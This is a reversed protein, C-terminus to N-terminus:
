NIIKRRISPVTSRVASAQSGAATTLRRTPASMGQDSSANSRSSVQSDRNGSAGGILTSKRNKPPRTSLTDKEVEKKEIKEKQTDLSEHVLNAPHNALVQATTFIAISAFSTVMELAALEDANFASAGSRRALVLVGGLKMDKVDIHNGKVDSLSTQIQRHCPYFLPLFIAPTNAVLSNSSTGSSGVVGDIDAEYRSDACIDVVNIPKRAVLTAHILSNRNANKMGSMAMFLQQEDPLLAPWSIVRTDGHSVVRWTSTVENEITKMTSYIDCTLIVGLSDARVISAATSLFQLCKDRVCLALYYNASPQQHLSLKGATKERNKDNPIELNGLDAILDNNNSLGVNQKSNRVHDETAGFRALSERAVILPLTTARKLLARSTQYQKDTSDQMNLLRKILSTQSIEYASLGSSLGGLSTLLPNLIKPLLNNGHFTNCLDIGENDQKEDNVTIPMPSAYIIRIIIYEKNEKEEEKNSLPLLSCQVVLKENQDISNCNANSGHSTSINDHKTNNKHYNRHHNPTNSGYINKLIHAPVGHLDLPSLHKNQKEKSKLNEESDTSPSTGIVYHSGGKKCCSLVSSSSSIKDEFNEYVIEGGLITRVTHGTLNISSNNSHTSNLEGTKRSSYIYNNNNSSLDSPDLSSPVVVRAYVRNEESIKLILISLHYAGLYLDDTAKMHNNILETDNLKDEQSSRKENYIERHNHHVLSDDGLGGGFLTPPPDLTCNKAFSYGHSNSPDIGLVIGILYDSVRLMIGCIVDRSPATKISDLGLKDVQVSDDVALESFKNMPLESLDNQTCTNHRINASGSVLLTHHNMLDFAIKSINGLSSDSDSNFRTDKLGNADLPALITQLKKLAFKTTNHAISAERLLELNRLAISRCHNIDHITASANLLIASIGEFVESAVAGSVDLIPIHESSNELSKDRDNGKEDNRGDDTQLSIYAYMELSPLLVRHNHLNKDLEFKDQPLDQNIQGIDNIDISEKAVPPPPPPRALPKPVSLSMNDEFIKNRQASANSKLEDLAQSRRNELVRALKNTLMIDHTPPDEEHKASGSVVSISPHPNGNVYAEAIKSVDDNSRITVETEMGNKSRLLLVAAFETEENNSLVSPEPDIQISNISEATNNDLDSICVEDDNMPLYPVPPYKVHKSNYAYRSEEYSKIQSMPVLEIIIGCRSLVAGVDPSHLIAGISRGSSSGKIISRQLYNVAHWIASRSALVLAKYQQELAQKALIICDVELSSIQSTVSQQRRSVYLINSVAQAAVDCLEELDNIQANNESGTNNDLEDFETSEKQISKMDVLVQMIGVVAKSNNSQKSNTDDHAQEDEKTHVAVPSFLPFSIVRIGKEGFKNDEFNSLPNGKANVRHPLTIEVTSRKGLACCDVAQKHAILFSEDDLVNRVDYKDGELQTYIENSSHFINSLDASKNDVLSTNHFHWFLSPIRNEKKHQIEEKESNEEGSLKIVEAFAFRCSTSSSVMIPLSYCLSSLLIELNDAYARAIINRDHDVSQPTNREVNDFEEEVGNKSKKQQGEHWKSRPTDQHDKQRKAAFVPATAIFDLCKNVMNTLSFYFQAATQAKNTVIGYREVKNKEKYLDDILADVNSVADAATKAHIRERYTSSIASHLQSSLVSMIKQGESGINDQSNQPKNESKVESVRIAEDVLPNIDGSSSVKDPHKLLEVIVMGIMRGDNAEIRKSISLPNQDFNPNPDCKPYITEDLPDDPKVLVYSGEDLGFKADNFRITGVEGASSNYIDREGGYLALLVRGKIIRSLNSLLSRLSPLNQIPINYGHLDMQSEQMGSVILEPGSAVYTGIASVVADITSTCHVLAELRNNVEVSQKLTSRSFNEYKLLAIQQSQHEASSLFFPAAMSTFKLIVDAIKAGTSTLPSLNDVWPTPNLRDFTDFSLDSSGTIRDTYTPNLFLFRLVCVVRRNSVVPILWMQEEQWVRKNIINKSNKIGVCEEVEENNKNTKSASEYFVAGRVPLLRSLRLMTPKQPENHLLQLIRVSLIDGLSRTERVEVIGKNSWRHDPSPYEDALVNEEETRGYALHHDHKIDSFTQVGTVFYDRVTSFDPDHQFNPDSPNSTECVVEDVCMGCGRIEITQRGVDSENANNLMSILPGSLLKWLDSPSNLAGSRAGVTVNDLTMTQHIGHEKNNVIDSICNYMSKWESLARELMTIRNQHDRRDKIEKTLVLHRTRICHFRWQIFGQNLLHRVSNAHLIKTSRNLFFSGLKNKKTAIKVESSQRQLLFASASEERVATTLTVVSTILSSLIAVEEDDRCISSNDSGLTLEDESISKRVLPPSVTIVLKLSRYDCKPSLLLPVTLPVIVTGHQLEHTPSATVALAGQNLLIRSATEIATHVNNNRRSVNSNNGGDSTEIRDGAFSVVVIKDTECSYSIPNPVDIKSILQEAYESLVEKRENDVISNPKLQTMALVVPNPGNKSSSSSDSHIVKGIVSRWVGITVLLGTDNAFARFLQLLCAKFYDESSCALTHNALMKSWERIGGLASYACTQCFKRIYDGSKLHISSMNSIDQIRKMRGKWLGQADLLKLLLALRLQIGVLFIRLSEPSKPTSNKEEFNAILRVSTHPFSHHHISLHLINELLGCNIYGSPSEVTCINKMRVKKDASQTKEINILEDASTIEVSENSFLLRTSELIAQTSDLEEIRNHVDFSLKGANKFELSKHQMTDPNVFQFPFTQSLGRPRCLDQQLYEFEMELQQGKLADSKYTSLQRTLMVLQQKAHAFGQDGSSQNRLCFALVTCIYSVCFRDNETFGASSSREDRVTVIVANLDENDFHHNIAGKLLHSPQVGINLTFPIIMASTISKREDHNEIGRMRISKRVAWSRWSHNPDQVLNHDNSGSALFLTRNERIATVELDLPDFEVDILSPSQSSLTFYRGNSYNDFSEFNDYNGCSNNEFESSEPLSSSSATCYSSVISPLIIHVDVSGTISSIAKRALDLQLGWGSRGSHLAALIDMSAQAAEQIQSRTNIENNVKDQLSSRADELVKITCFAESINLNSNELVSLQELEAPLLLNVFSSLIEEEVETFYLDDHASHKMQCLSINDSIKGFEKASTDLYYKREVRLLAVTCGSSIRETGVQSNSKHIYNLSGNVPVWLVCGKRQRTQTVILKQVIESEGQLGFGSLLNHICSFDGARVKQLLVEMDEKDIINSSIDSNNLFITFCEITCPDTSGRKLISPVTLDIAQGFESLTQCRKKRVIDIEQLMLRFAKSVNSNIAVQNELKVYEEPDLDRGHVRAETARMLQRSVLDCGVTIIQKEDESFATDIGSSNEPRSRGSCPRYFIFCAHASKTYTRICKNPVCLINAGLSVDKDHEENDKQLITSSLQSNLESSPIISSLIEVPAGTRLSDGAAAIIGRIGGGGSLTGASSQAVCILLLDKSEALALLWRLAAESPTIRIPLIKSEFHELVSIDFDVTNSYTINSHCVFNSVLRSIEDKTRKALSAEHSKTLLNNELLLNKEYARDLCLESHIKAEEQEKVLKDLLTNRMKLDDDKQVLQATISSEVHKTELEAKILLDSLTKSEGFYLDRQKRADETKLQEEQLLTQLRHKKMNQIAKEIVILLSDKLLREFDKSCEVDSSKVDADSRFVLVTFEPHSDVRQSNAPDLTLWIPIRSQLSDSSISWLPVELLQSMSVCKRETNKKETSLAAIASASVFDFKGSDSINDADTTIVSYSQYRKERDEQARQEPINIEGLDRIGIDNRVLLKVSSAGILMPVTKSLYASLSNLSLVGGINVKRNEEILKIKSAYTETGDRIFELLHLLSENEHDKFSDSTLSADRIRMSEKRETHLKRILSEQLRYRSVLERAKGTISVVKVLIYGILKATDVENQGIPLSNEYNEHQNPIIRIDGINCDNKDGSNVLSLVVQNTSKTEKEIVCEDINSFSFIDECIDENQVDESSVLVDSKESPESEQSSNTKSDLSIRIIAVNAGCIQKLLDCVDPLMRRLKDASALPDSISSLADGLIGFIKPLLSGFANTLYNSTNQSRNLGLGRGVLSNTRKLNNLIERANQRRPGALRTLLRSIYICYESLTSVLFTSLDLSSRRRLVRVSAVIYSDTSILHEGVCIYGLIASYEGTDHVYVFEGLETNIDSPAGWRTGWSVEISAGPCLTELHTTAMDLLSEYSQSKSNPHVGFHIQTIDLSANLLVKAQSLLREARNKAAFHKWCRLFLSLKKKDIKNQIFITYKQLQEREKQHYFAKYLVIQNEQVHSVISVLDTLLSSKVIARVFFDVEGYYKSSKEKNRFMLEPVANSSYFIIFVGQLTDKNNTEKIIPVLVASCFFTRGIIDQIFEKLNLTSISSLRKSGNDNTFSFSAETHVKNTKEEDQSSCVHVVLAGSHLAKSWAIQPDCTPGICQLSSTQAGGTSCEFFHTRNENITDSSNNIELVSLLEGNISGIFQDTFILVPSIEEIAAGLLSTINPSLMANTLAILEGPQPQRTGSVPFQSLTPYLDAAKFQSIRKMICPAILSINRIKENLVHNCIRTIVEQVIPALELLFSTANRMLDADLQGHRIDQFKCQQMALIILCKGSEGVQASVAVLNVQTSSSWSSLENTSDECLGCERLQGVALSPITVTGFNEAFDSSIQNESFLRQLLPYRPDYNVKSTDISTNNTGLSYFSMDDRTFLCWRACVRLMKGIQSSEICSITRKSVELLPFYSPPQGEFNDNYLFPPAQFVLSGFARALNLLSKMISTHYLQSSEEQSRRHSLILENERQLRSGIGVAIRKQFQEVYLSRLKNNNNEVIKRSSHNEPRKKRETASSTDNLCEAALLIAISRCGNEKPTEVVTAFINHLPCEYMPDAVNSASSLSTQSHKFNGLAVARMARELPDWINFNDASPKISTSHSLKIRRGEINRLGSGDGISENGSNITSSKANSFDMGMQFLMDSAPGSNLSVRLGDMRDCWFAGIEQDGSDKNARTNGNDDVLAYWLQVFNVGLPGFCRRQEEQILKNMFEFHSQALEMMNLHDKVKIKKTAISAEMLYVRQSILEVSVALNQITPEEADLTIDNNNSSSNVNLSFDQGIASQKGMDQSLNTDNNSSLECERNLLRTLRVRSTSLRDKVITKPDHDNTDLIRPGDNQEGAIEFSIRKSTSDVLFLDARSEESKEHEHM